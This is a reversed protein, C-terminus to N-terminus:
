KVRGMVNIFKEIAKEISSSKMEPDLGYAYRLIGGSLRIIIEADDADGGLHEAVVPTMLLEAEHAYLEFRDMLAPFQKKREVWAKVSDGSVSTSHMVAVILRVTRNLLHDPNEQFQKLAEETLIPARLGLIADEKSVYYNFFTRRSVGAAEAIDEVKTEQVGHELALREAAKHIEVSTRERNKDRLSGM